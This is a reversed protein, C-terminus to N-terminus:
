NITQNFIKVSQKLTNTLKVADEKEGHQIWVQLLGFLISTAIGVVYDAQDCEIPLNQFLIPKIRTSYKQEYDYLLTFNESEELTMLLEIHEM